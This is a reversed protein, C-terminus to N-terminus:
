KRQPWPRSPRTIEFIAVRNEESNEHVNILRLDPNDEISRILQRNDHEIWLLLYASESHIQNGRNTSLILETTVLKCRNETYFKLRAENCLWPKSQDINDLAWHAGTRIIAKSSGVSITSDLFLLLVFAWALMSWRRSPLAALKQFAADVYQFTLLSLLLVTLVTHRSSLFFQNALISLVPLIALVLFLAVVRNGQDSNIWRNVAGYAFVLMYPVVANILIKYIALGILGIGLVFAAEEVSSLFQLQEHLQLSEAYFREVVSAPSIYSLWLQLTPSNQGSFFLGYASATVVGVVCLGILLYSSKLIHNIKAEKFDRNLTYYLIPVAFFIIGEIRFAVAVIAAVQWAFSAARRSTRTFRIFYLLSILTFAWFGSDRIVLDRYANLIPLSLILIAALWPRAEKHSIEHYISVFTSCTIALLVTNLLYASHEFSISTAQHIVGILIGYFPWNYVAYAEAIGGSLYRQAVEVYLVGDKNVIDGQAYIFLSIAVSAVITLIPLKSAQMTRTM